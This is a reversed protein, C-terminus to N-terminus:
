CCCFSLFDDIFVLIVSFPLLNIENRTTAVIKAKNVNYFLFSTFQTKKERLVFSAKARTMVKSYKEVEM